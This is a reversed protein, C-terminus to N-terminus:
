NENTTFPNAQKKNEPVYVMIADWLAALKGQKQADELALRELTQPVPRDASLPMVGAGILVTLRQQWNLYRWFLLKLKAVAAEDYPAMTTENSAISGRAPPAALPPAATAAMPSTTRVKVAEPKRGPCAIEFEASDKGGLRETDADFRARHPMWIRPFINVALSHSGAKEHLSFEIWNYSHRYAATSEPPNTAGSYIDLRENGFIDTTKDIAPIHEHGVMMVRVRNYLYPKAESKDLFWEMPHHMLAVYVLHPRDPLIYQTNGLVMSGARDEADSIQVSNMGVLRLTIGGPVPFDESWSPCAISTFDSGYGAAFDRYAKLKPLLPNAEENGRAYDELDAYASKVKGARINRHATYALRSIQTRDCDHNGPVVRVDTERCNTAKTLQDLWEGARKYEAHQGRYAIDGAVVVLNAPGRREALTAADALLESRVDDHIVLTGDREQGFHIDSLQVFRINM